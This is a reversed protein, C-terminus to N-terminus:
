WRKPCTAIGIPLYSRLLHIFISGRVEDPETVRRRPAENVASVMAASRAAITYIKDLMTLMCRAIVREHCTGICNPEEVDGRSSNTLAFDSLWYDIGRRAVEAHIAESNILAVSCLRMASNIHAGMGVLYSPSEYLKRAAFGVSFFSIKHAHQCVEFLDVSITRMTESLDVDMCVPGFSKRMALTACCIKKNLCVLRDRGFYAHQAYEPRGSEHAKTAYDVTRQSLRVMEILDTRLFEAKTKMPQKKRKRYVIL